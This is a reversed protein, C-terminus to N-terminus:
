MDRRFCNDAVIALTNSAATTILPKRAIVLPTNVVDIAAPVLLVSSTHIPTPNFINAVSIFTYSFVFLEIDALNNFSILFFISFSVFSVNLKQNCL